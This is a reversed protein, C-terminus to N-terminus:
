NDKDSQTRDSADPKTESQAPSIRRLPNWNAFIRFSSIHIRYIYQSAAIPCQVCPRCCVQRFPQPLMIFLLTARLVRARRGTRTTYLSSHWVNASARARSASILRSFLLSFSKSTFAPFAALLLKRCYSLILYHSYSIKVSIKVVSPTINKRSIM